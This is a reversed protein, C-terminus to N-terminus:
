VYGVDLSQNSLVKVKNMSQEAAGKLALDLKVTYHIYYFM